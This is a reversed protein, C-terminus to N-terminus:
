EVKTMLENISFPQNSCHLGARRWQMHIYSYRGNFVKKDRFEELTRNNEDLVIWVLPLIPRGTLNRNSVLISFNTQITSTRLVDKYNDDLFQDLVNTLSEERPGRSPQLGLDKDRQSRQTYIPDM